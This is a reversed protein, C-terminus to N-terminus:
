GEQADAASEGAARDEQEAVAREAASGEICFENGAPDAMVVWGRGNSKRRDDVVVSGLAEM